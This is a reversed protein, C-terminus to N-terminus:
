QKEAQPNLEDRYEKYKDIVARRIQERLANTAPEVLDRYKGERAKQAPYGLYLGGQPTELIKIGRIVLVDNLTIEAYARINGAEFPYIKVDTVNLM